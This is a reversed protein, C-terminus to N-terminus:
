AVGGGASGLAGECWGGGTAFFEVGGEAADGAVAEVASDGLLGTGAEFSEDAAQTFEVVSFALGGIFGIEAFGDELGIGFNEFAVLVGFDFHGGVLANKVGVM